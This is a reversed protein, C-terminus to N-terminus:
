SAAGGPHASEVSAMGAATPPLGHPARAAFAGIAAQFAAMPLAVLALPASAVVPQRSAAAELGRSDDPWPRWPRPPSSQRARSGRDRRRHDPLGFHRRLLPIGSRRPVRVDADDGHRDGTPRHRVGYLWIGSIEDPSVRGRWGLVGR